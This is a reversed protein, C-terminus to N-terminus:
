ASSRARRRARRGAARASGEALRGLGAVLKGADGRRGEALGRADAADHGPQDLVPVQQLVPPNVVGAIHGSGSLVFRVEAHTMEKAGRYVSAAPAIHDEKTAVHYVPGKIDALTVPTGRSASSARPSPTGSTSSSSISATCGRRCRPRIPTGTSCTSRSRTRARAHLELRHLGLDPRERAAHQLREGHPRRAHLGEGHGRRDGRPHARRRLDAARGRGRLRAPRHLLDGLGGAQRRDQGHWALLTGALTGGICYSALHLSKQGTEELVKDIAALGGEFM